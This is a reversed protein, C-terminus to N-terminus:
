AREGVAGEAPSEAAKRELDLVRSERVGPRPRPLNWAVRDKEDDADESSATEPPEAIM